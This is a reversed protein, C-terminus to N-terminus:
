SSPSISSLEKFVNSISNFTEIITKLKEKDQQYKEDYWETLKENYQNIVAKLEEFKKDIEEINIKNGERIELSISEALSNAVYKVAEDVRLEEEM